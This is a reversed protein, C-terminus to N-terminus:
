LGVLEAWSRALGSARSSRMILITAVLTRARGVRDVIGFLAGGIGWCILKVAIVVSGAQQVLDRDTTQLLERMSPVLVLTFINLDMCDFVYGLFASWFALKQYKTTEVTSVPAGPLTPQYLAM